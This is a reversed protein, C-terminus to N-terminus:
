PPCRLTRVVRTAFRPTATHAHECMVARSLVRYKRVYIMARFSIMYCIADVMKEGWLEPSRLLSDGSSFEHKFPNLCPAPEACTPMTSKSTRHRRPARPEPRPMSQAHRALTPHQNRLSLRMFALLPMGVCPERTHIASAHNLTCQIHQPCAASEM